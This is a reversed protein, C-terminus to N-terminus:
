REFKLLIKCLIDAMQKQTLELGNHLWEELIGIVGSVAFKCEVIHVGSACLSLDEPMMKKIFLNKLKYLTVGNGEPRSLLLFLTRNDMIYETLTHTLNMLSAAYDYADNDSAVCDGTINDVPYSQDFLLEIKSYLDNEIHEFLDYIDKYHLYFTGRGLDALQSIEAITIKNISKHSLLTLLAERIARQTKQVRRDM